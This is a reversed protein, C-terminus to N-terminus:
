CGTDVLLNEVMGAASGYAAEATSLRARQPASLNGFMRGNRM